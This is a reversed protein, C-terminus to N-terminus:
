TSAVAPTFMLGLKSLEAGMNLAEEPAMIVGFQDGDPTRLILAVAGEEQSYGTTWAALESVEAEVVLAPQETM